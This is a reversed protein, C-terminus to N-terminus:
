RDQVKRVLESLDYLDPISQVQNIMEMTLDDGMRYPGEKETSIGFAGCFQVTCCADVLRCFQEFGPPPECDIYGGDEHSGYGTWSIHESVLAAALKLHRSDAVKTAMAQDRLEALPHQIHKEVQSVPLSNGVNPTCMETVIMYQGFLILKQDQDKILFTLFLKLIITVKLTGNRSPM